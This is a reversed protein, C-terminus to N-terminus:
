KKHQHPFQEFSFHYTCWFEMFWLLGSYKILYILNNVRNREWYDHGRGLFTKSVDRQSFAIFKPMFCEKGFLIVCHHHHALSWGLSWFGQCNKKNKQVETIVIVNQCPENSTKPSTANLPIYTIFSYKFLVETWNLETLDSLWTRSKAVGHIAARWADRDM